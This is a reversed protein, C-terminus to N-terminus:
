KYPMWRPIWRGVEQKYRCYEEGFQGELRKEEGPILWLNAFLFLGALYGLIGLSQFYLGEGLVIQLMGLFMPNRVYKYPGVLVLRKPVGFPTPQRNWQQSAYILRASVIALTCGTLFLGVGVWRWQGFPPLAVGSRTLFVDLYTALYPFIGGVLFPPIPLWGIRSPIITM